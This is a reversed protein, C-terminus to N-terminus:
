VVGPVGGDHAPKFLAGSRGLRRRALKLLCVCGLFWEIRPNRSMGVIDRPLRILYRTGVDIGRKFNWDLRTFGSGGNAAIFRLDIKVGCVHVM